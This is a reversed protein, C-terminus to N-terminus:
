EAARPASTGVAEALAQATEVGSLYAGACTAWQTEHCAEGAFFLRGALPRRLADRLNAYGAEASAYSGRIWPDKSWRSMTGKVFSRDVESGYIKRLEALAFDVAAAPGAEQLDRGLDGGVYGFSLGSSSINTLLGMARTTRAQYAVYGDEGLGFIDESFLLAINNYSGLSIRHFSEQKDAPLAPQFTIAGSALLGTSATVIAAKAAITGASTELSVGKSGWEIRTVPTSLKVPIDRGYHAVVAGFGERCFWDTGDIATSWDLCSFGDLEKGISWPGVYAAALPAWPGTVNAADSAAIDQGAAGAKYIEGRLDYYAQDHAAYEEKTAERNGVYVKEEDRAPYVSFGNNRAYPLWPNHPVRDLWHCGVDYPVGFTQTETFARGGIRDKAEILAVAFGADLLTRAAGLGAAGAGVVVVDPNRPVAAGAWRPLLAVTAGALFRRRSLNAFSRCDFSM